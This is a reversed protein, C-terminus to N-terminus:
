LPYTLPTAWLCNLMAESIASCLMLLTKNETEKLKINQVLFEFTRPNPEFAIIDHVRKAMKVTFSGAHAGIDILTSNKSPEFLREYVGFVFIEVVIWGSELPFVLRGLSSNPISDPIVRIKQGYLNILKGNFHDICNKL